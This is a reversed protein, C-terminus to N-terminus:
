RLAQHNQSGDNMFDPLPLEDVKLVNAPQLQGNETIVATQM